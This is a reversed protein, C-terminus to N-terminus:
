GVRQKSYNSYRCKRRRNDYTYLEFRHKPMKVTATKLSLTVESGLKVIIKRTGAHYSSKSSFFALSDTECAGISVNGGSLHIGCVEINFIGGKVM